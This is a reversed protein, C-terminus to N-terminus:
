VHALLTDVSQSPLSLNYGFGCFAIYIHPITASSTPCRVQSECTVLNLRAQCWRTTTQLIGSVGAHSHSWYLTTISHDYTVSKTTYGGVPEHGFTPLHAGQRCGWPPIAHKVKAKCYACCFRNTCNNYRNVTCYV